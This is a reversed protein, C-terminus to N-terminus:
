STPGRPPRRAPAFLPRAGTSTPTPLPAIWLTYGAPSIAPGPDGGGSIGSVLNGLGRGSGLPATVVALALGTVVAAGTLVVSAATKGIDFREVELTRLDAFCLGDLLELGQDLVRLLERGRVWHWEEARVALGWAGLFSGDTGRRLEGIVRTYRQGPSPPSLLAFGQGEQQFIHPARQQALTVVFDRVWAALPGPEAKLAVIGQGLDLALAGAPAAQLLLNVGDQDLGAIRIELLAELPHRHRVLVGDASLWLDGARLWPSYSGDARVFRVRSQPAVPVKAGDEGQLLIRAQPERAAAAGLNGLGAAPVAQQSFCGAVSLLFLLCLPATFNRHSSGQHESNVM